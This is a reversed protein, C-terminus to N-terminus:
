LSLIFYSKLINCIIISYFLIQFEYILPLNLISLTTCSLFINDMLLFYDLVYLVFNVVCKYQVILLEFM